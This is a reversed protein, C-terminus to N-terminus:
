VNYRQANQESGTCAGTIECIKVTEPQNPYSTKTPNDIYDRRFNTAIFNEDKESKLEARESKSTLVGGIIEPVFSVDVANNKDERYARVKVESPTLSFYQQGLETTKAADLPYSLTIIAGRSGERSADLKNATEDAVYIEIEVYPMNQDDYFINKTLFIDSDIKQWGTKGNDIKFWRPTYSDGAYPINFEVSTAKSEEGKPPMGTEDSDNTSGVFVRTLKNPDIDLTYVSQGKYSCECNNLLLTITKNNSKNIFNKEAETVGHGRSFRTHASMISGFMYEDSSIEIYLPQIPTLQPFHLDEGELIKEFLENTM